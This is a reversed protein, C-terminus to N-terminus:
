TGEEQEAPLAMDPTWMEEIPGLRAELVGPPEWLDPNGGCAIEKILECMYLFNRVPIDPPVGHDVSPIYGGQEILWPVKSMVERRVREKDFRLERKDIGGMMLLRKGYKKRYTVPDNNAAIEIPSVCSIGVDLWLPILEGNYGDCDMILISVGRERFFRVLRRYRPWLFEKVMAPSIMSATKYAMDENFYVYDVDVQRLPEDLVAITLDVVHDMMEHVLGPSDHFMMCLGEFGVWDRVRWFMSQITLGLVCNRNGYRAVREAWDQPIRGPSDPQYRERMELWDDRDKVPFELWKRTVFGPTPLVKHDIRKAGLYDIWVKYRETEELVVEEFPPVPGLDIPLGEWHDYGVWRYFDLDRTLGQKYWADLTSERPGGFRYPIRDPVGFTMTALFRERANM